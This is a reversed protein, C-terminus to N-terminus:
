KVKNLTKIDNEIQKLTYDCLGFSFTKKSYDKCKSDWTKCSIKVKNFIDALIKSDFSNRNVGKLVEDSYLDFLKNIDNKLYYCKKDKGSMKEENFEFSFLNSSLLGLICIIILSKKM